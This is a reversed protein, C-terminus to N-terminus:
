EGLLQLFLQNYQKMVVKDGYQQLTKRRIDEPSYTSINTIMDQMSVALEAVNESAILMGNDETVIAAYKHVAGLLFCGKM